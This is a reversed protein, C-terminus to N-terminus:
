IMDFEEYVNYMKQDTYLYGMEDVESEEVKEVPKLERKLFIEQMFDMDKTKINSGNLRSGKKEQRNDLIHGKLENDTGM